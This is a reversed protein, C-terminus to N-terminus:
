IPPVRRPLGRVVRVSRSELLTAVSIALTLGAFGAALSTFILMGPLTTGTFYVGLSSIALAVLGRYKGLNIILEEIATLVFATALSAIVLSIM